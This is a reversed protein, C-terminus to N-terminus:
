LLPGWVKTDQDGSPSILITDTTGWFILFLIVKHDLLEMEVWFFRFCPRLSIIQVGYCCYECYQLDLTSGSFQTHANWALEWITSTCWVSCQKKLGQLISSFLIPFHSLSCSSSNPWFNCGKRPYSSQFTQSRGKFHSIAM